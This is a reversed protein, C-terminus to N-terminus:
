RGTGDAPEVPASTWALASALAAVFADEGGSFRHNAAEVSYFRRTPSEPGFLAQARAAPLYNDHTSQIVACRLAGIDRLRAYPELPWHRGPESAGGEDTEDEPGDVTLDEGQDLGIAIVGLLQGDLVPESAAIASFAAGRSWGALIARPGAAVGFAQRARALIVAYDDALRRANLPADRPREIRLFARSSFGVTAYGHRAITRFMDSAAGFWGGDGTAYVVLRTPPAPLAPMALHLELPTDHLLVTTTTVHVPPLSSDIRQEFATSCGAAVCSLGIVFVWDLRRAM